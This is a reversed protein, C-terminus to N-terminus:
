SREVAADEQKMVRREVTREREVRVNGEADRSVDM